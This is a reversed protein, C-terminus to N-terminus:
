PEFCCCCSHKRAPLSESRMREEMEIACSSGEDDYDVSAVISSDAAFGAFCRVLGTKPVGFLPTM